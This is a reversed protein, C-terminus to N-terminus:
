LYTVGSSCARKPVKKVEIEDTDVFYVIRKWCRECRAVVVNTTSRGDWQGVRRGCIPCYIKRPNYKEPKSM